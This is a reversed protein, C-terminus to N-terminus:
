EEEKEEVRGGRKGELSVLTVQYCSRSGGFILMQPHEAISYCVCNFSVESTLPLLHIQQHVCAATYSIIIINILASYHVQTPRVLQLM